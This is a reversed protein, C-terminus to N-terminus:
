KVGKTRRCGFVGLHRFGDWQSSSQTNLTLIDDNVSRPAKNHIRHEFPVRNFCPNKPQDLAWDTCVRIGHVIEKTAALTNQPTLRNLMGLEDKSGFLGGAVLCYNAIAENPPSFSVRQERSM